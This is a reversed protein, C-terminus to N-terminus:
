KLSSIFQVFEDIQTRELIIGSMVHEDNKLINWIMKLRQWLTYDRPANVVSIDISKDDNSYKEYEILLSHFSWGCDCDFRKRKYNVM